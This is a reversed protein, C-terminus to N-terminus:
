YAQQVEHPEWKWNKPPILGCYIARIEAEEGGAYDVKDRKRKPISIFRVLLKDCDHELVQAKASITKSRWGFLTRRDAALYVMITDAVPFYNSLCDRITTDKPFYSSIVSHRASDTLEKTKWNNLNDWLKTEKEMTYGLYRAARDSGTQRVVKLYVSDNLQKVVEAFVTSKLYGQLHPKQGNYSRHVITGPSYFERIAEIANKWKNMWIELNISDQGTAKKLEIDVPEHNLRQHYGRFIADSMNDPHQYGLSELLRRLKSNGWLGWNNRMWMGLNRHHRGTAERRPLTMFTYKATDDFIQDLQIFAEELSEPKNHSGISIQSFCTTNIFVLLGLALHKM